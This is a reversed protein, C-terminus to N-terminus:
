QAQGEVEEVEVLHRIKWVMGRVSPIDPKVVSQHLKRLGLARATEGQSKELGIASRVLTIKISKENAM